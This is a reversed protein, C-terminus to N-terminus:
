VMRERYKFGQRALQKSRCPVGRRIKETKRLGIERQGAYM